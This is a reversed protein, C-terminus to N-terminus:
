VSRLVETLQGPLPDVLTELFRAAVSTDLGSMSEQQWQAYAAETAWHGIVFYEDPSTLSHTLVLSEFGPVQRPRELLTAEAFADEFDAGRGPQTRFHIVSIYSM